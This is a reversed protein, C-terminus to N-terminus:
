NDYQGGSFSANAQLWTYMAPFSAFNLGTGITTQGEIIDVKVSQFETKLGSTPDGANTFCYAYDRITGSRIDAQTELTNGGTALMISGYTLKKTGGSGGGGGATAQEFEETTENWVVSVAPDTENWVNLETINKISM